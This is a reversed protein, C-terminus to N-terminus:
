KVSLGKYFREALNLIDEKRAVRDIWKSPIAKFGYYIGALGGAVSATTDTDGGLNVASLVTDSYSKNNLVCWLSAELTHVVYGDSYIENEPIKYIDSKLIRDFHYLEREYESKSYYQNTVNKMKNYSSQLDYGNLLNIAFQIYMGCAIESRRTRHTLDSVSHTVKFQDNLNRNKLYFAIPLIRMLAGNGNDLEGTSGAFLPDVGSEMRKIAKLTTKGIDFIQGHPTWYGDNLWSCFKKAIDNYNLGYCLSEALCFTLSSDDSWTGPPQFHTGYGIMDKAPNNRLTNRETFEYPVGLADGICLGFLGGLLQDNMEM